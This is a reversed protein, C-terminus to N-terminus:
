RARPHYKYYVSKLHEKTLHTYIETTSIDSHGLMLQVSHLDAGRLLLHTAFSHRLSHPSISKINAKIACEKILKWVYQRTIHRGKKGPFVFDKLHNSEMYKKLWYMAEEGLPIVREKNGKGKVIVFGVQINLQILKLTVLESVRMGTAYLLELIVRDRLGKRTETKPIKILSEVEEETLVDPLSRRLKPLTINFLPDRDIVGEKTLYKTFQRLSVMNRVISTTEKGEQQLKEFFKLFDETNPIIDKRGERELFNCFNRLDNAYSEVTKQSLGRIVMLQQLFADIYQHM